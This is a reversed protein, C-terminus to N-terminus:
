AAFGLGLQGFSASGKARNCQRCSCAVNGWTHTGGDKLSVIHELEPARPESTGRLAKITRIGCIHCRWKDREFVKFPNIRDHEGIRCRARRMAQGISASDRRAQRVCTLSCARQWRRRRVFCTGCQPCEVKAFLAKSAAAIRALAMIEERVIRRSERASDRDALMQLQICDSARSINVASTRCSRSCFMDRNTNKKFFEDGCHLCVFPGHMKTKKYHKRQCADTCYKARAIKSTFQTDCYVCCKLQTSNADTM